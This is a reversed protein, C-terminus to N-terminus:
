GHGQEKSWEAFTDQKMEQHYYSHVDVAIETAQAVTAGCLMSVYPIIQELVERYVFGYIRTTESANQAFKNSASWMILSSTMIGFLQDRHAHFFDNEGLALLLLMTVNLVSGNENDYIDDIEQSAKFICFLCGAAESNGMAWENFKEKEDRM